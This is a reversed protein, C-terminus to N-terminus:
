QNQYNQIWGLITEKEFDNDAHYRVSTSPNLKIQLSVLNNDDPYESNRWVYEFFPLEPQGFPLELVLESSTDEDFKRQIGHRSYGVEKLTGPNGWENFLVFGEHDGKHQITLNDGFYGVEFDGIKRDDADESNKKLDITKVIKGIHEETSARAEAWVSPYFQARDFAKAMYLISTEM